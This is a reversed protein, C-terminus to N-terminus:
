RVLTVRRTDTKGGAELRLFYVGGAVRRGSGDRGDWRVQHAGATRRGRALTRVRRGSVDYIRLSVDVPRPLEFRVATERAFPNPANPLLRLGDRAHVVDGVPVDVPPNYTAQAQDSHERLELLSTGGVIAIPVEISEAPALTFPGLAVLLSYDDPVSTVPISHLSDSGSLFAYKDADLIYSNPWVFTPNPILTLNSVPPTSGSDLARVGIFIDSDNLYAMKRPEDTAGEDDQATGAIDLDLFLGCRVDDRTSDSRNHVFYRVIVFDDESSGSDFAWSEQRIYFGFPDDADDDNCAAKVDQDSNGGIVIAPHGDPETEVAWEKKPDADFDRNAVYNEGQAVWLGGIFLHNQTSTEDPYVLGSGESQTEDLFGLIGRGTVSLRLSGRDHDVIDAPDALFPPFEPCLGPLCPEFFPTMPRPDSGAPMAPVLPAIESAQIQNDANADTWSSEYSGDGDEDRLSGSWYSGNGSEWEEDWYGDDDLDTYGKDFIGDEQPDTLAWDPNGDADADSFWHDKIGNMNWDEAWVEPELPLVPDATWCGPEGTCDARQAVPTRPMALIPSGAPWYTAEGREFIDDDVLDIWSLDGLGDGDTDKLFSNPNGDILRYWEWYPEDIKLVYDDADGDEDKDVRLRDAIGDLDNDQFAHDADGDGDWDETWYRTAAQASPALSILAGLLAGALLRITKATFTM